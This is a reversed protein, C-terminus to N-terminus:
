AHADIHKRRKQNQNLKNKLEELIKLTIYNNQNENDKINPQKVIIHDLLFRNEEKGRSDM